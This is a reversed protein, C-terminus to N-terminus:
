MSLCVLPTLCSSTLISLSLLPVASVTRHLHGLTAAVQLPFSLSHLFTDSVMFCLACLPHPAEAIHLVRRLMFAPVAVM